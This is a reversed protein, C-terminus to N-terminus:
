QQPLQQTQVPQMQAQRVQQQAQQAMIQAQQAQMMDDMRTAIEDMFVRLLDLREEPANDLKALLYSQQALQKALNLDYYPEPTEYEGDNLIKNIIKMIINRPATVMDTVGKIDPFDLLDIAHEQPILGAQLLETVREIKGEPTSPLVSTPYKRLIYDSRDLRIKRWEIKKMADKSPTMVELGHGMEHLEECLDFLIEIDNMQLDEFRTAQAKFRETGLDQYTRLAPRSDLGAPKKAQAEMSSVGIMEFYRQIQAQLHNYLEPPVANPTSFTPPMGQYKIIAGIDNTLHAVNIKSAENFFVRPVACLHQCRQITQCTKNIDLQIGAGEETIPTFWFGKTKKVWGWFSFPFYDRKYEESFIVKGEICITHVGDKAKSNSRLHWAEIILIDDTKSQYGARQIETKPAKSIDKEFKPFMAMAVRRDVLKMQYLNRPKGNIGDIDDVMIEDSFIRECKIKKEELDIYFKKVGAPYICGDRFQDTTKKYYDIEDLLGDFFDTLNKAREQQAWNGKNTLFFPRTKITGIKSTATDVCSKTVNLVLRNSMLLDSQNRLQYPNVTFSVPPLGNYVRELNVSMLRRYHQNQEILRYNNFIVDAQADGKERWWYVGQKNPDHQKNVWEVRENNRAM